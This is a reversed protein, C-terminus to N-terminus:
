FMLGEMLRDGLGVLLGNFWTRLIARGGFIPGDQAKARMGYLAIAIGLVAVAGALLTGRRVLAGGFARGAKRVQKRRRAREEEPDVYPLVILHLHEVMAEAEEDIPLTSADESWTFIVSQPGMISSVSIGPHNPPYTTYLEDAQALLSSLSVRTRPPQHGAVPTANTSKENVPKEDPTAAEVSQGLTPLSNRNASAETEVAQDPPESEELRVINSPIDILTSVTSITLTGEADSRGDTAHDEPAEEKIDIMTSTELHLDDPAEEKVSETKVSVLPVEHDYIEPLGSLLSHIM